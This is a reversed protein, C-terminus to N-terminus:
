VVKADVVVQWTYPATARVTKSTLVKAVRRNAKEVAEALRVEATTEPNTANTFEYYHMIGGTPKVAECAVDVYEIAKEPLNMVVRDAAGALRERVVQRVDGLISTVKAVVRNTAINKNLLEIADSNVDVAYVCVKEHQRAIQIAFPGIGAFMDVVTEGENVLRAVRMHESSLRPSFYAKSLDVHYVCGYERHVTVTKAEGAIVEFKRTRYIGEIASAKALVTHVRKNTALVAEGIKQKYRMLELPIELVAIDGVFDSARPLSAVLHPPLEEALVDVFTKATHSTETSFNRVCFEVSSVSKQLTERENAVPQRSLPIYLSNNGQEIKLSQNFLGLQRALLIIKEGSKKPIKLCSSTPL